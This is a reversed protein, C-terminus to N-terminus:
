ALSAWGTASTCTPVWESLYWPSPFHVPLAHSSGRCSFPKDNSRSLASLHPVSNSSTRGGAATIVCHTCFLWSTLWRTNSAVHFVRDVSFVSQFEKRLRLASDRATSFSFLHSDLLTRCDETTCDSSFRFLSHGACNDHLPLATGKCAQLPGSTELFNLNGSKM